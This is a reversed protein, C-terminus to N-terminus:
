KQVFLKETDPVQLTGVVTLTLKGPTTRPTTTVVHSFGM